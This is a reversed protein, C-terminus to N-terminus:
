ARPETVPDPAYGGAYGDLTRAARRMTEENRINYRDFVLRTRHGTIAMAEQEPLGAAIFRRAATRRLDHLLRGPCGAAATAARWAAFYSTLIARGDDRFFVYPTGLADAKAKQEVLISRLARTMAVVRGRKNKDTGTWLRVEDRLFDVQDWTMPAKERGKRDAGVLESSRWGTERAVRAVPVLSAPLQALLATFDRDEFFGARPNAEPMRSPFPPVFPITGERAAIVYARHLLALDRNVTGGALGDATRATQYARLTDATVKAAPMTGLHQTLRALPAVIAVAVHTKAHEHRYTALLSEVTAHHRAVPLGKAKDALRIHLLDRAAAKDRTKTNETIAQGDIFYKIRWFPSDKRRFCCGTDGRRKRSM